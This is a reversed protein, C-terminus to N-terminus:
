TKVKRRERQESCFEKNFMLCRSDISDTGQWERGWDRKEEREKADTEKWGAEFVAGRKKQM